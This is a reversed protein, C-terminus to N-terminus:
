HIKHPYKLQVSSFKNVKQTFQRLIVKTLSQGLLILTFHVPRSQHPRTWIFLCLSFYVACGSFTLLESENLSKRPRGRMTTRRCCRASRMLYITFWPVRERLLPRWQFHLILFCFNWDIKIIVGSILYKSCRENHKAGTLIKLHSASWSTTPAVNEKDKGGEPQWLSSKRFIIHINGWWWCKNMGFICRHKIHWSKNIEGTTCALHPTSPYVKIQMVSIKTQQQSRHQM